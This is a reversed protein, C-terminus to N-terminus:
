VSAEMKGNELLPIQDGTPSFEIVSIWDSGGM